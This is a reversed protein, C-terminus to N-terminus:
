HTEPDDAAKGRGEAKDQAECAHLLYDLLLKGPLRLM